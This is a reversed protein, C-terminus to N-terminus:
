RWAGLFNSRPKGLRQTAILVDMGKRNRFGLATLEVGAPLAFATIRQALGYGSIYPYPSLDAGIMRPVAPQGQIDDNWAM